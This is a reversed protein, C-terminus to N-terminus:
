DCGLSSLQSCLRLKPLPGGRTPESRRSRLWVMFTEAFDEAPCTAAYQSVHHKPDYLSPARADDYRGGFVQAFRQSKVLRPFSDALCHAYEHRLVDRLSVYPAWGLRHMIRPVSIMPIAISGRRGSCKWGYSDLAYPHAISLRVPVQALKASWLGVRLLDARVCALASLLRTSTVVYIKTKM